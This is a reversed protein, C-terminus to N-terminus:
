PKGKRFRGSEDAEACASCSSTKKSCPPPYPTPVAPRDVSHMQSGSCRGSFVSSRTDGFTTEDGTGKRTGQGDQGRGCHCSPATHRRRQNVLLVSRSDGFIHLTSAVRSEHAARSQQHVRDLVNSFYTTYQGGGGSIKIYRVTSGASGGRWHLM